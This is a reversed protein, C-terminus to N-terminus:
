LGSESALTSLDVTFTRGQVSFDVVVTVLRMVEESDNDSWADTTMTWHYGHYDPEFDGDQDGDVWDGTVVMESLIRDALQSAERTRVAVVSARHAISMGEAIAPIVIAMFLMAALVEVLTFGATTPKSIIM